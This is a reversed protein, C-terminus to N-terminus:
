LKAKLDNYSDVNKDNGLPKLTKILAKANEIRESPLPHSQLFALAAPAEGQSKFTEFMRVLGNPDYGRRNCMPLGHEDADREHDRSFKLLVGTSALQSALASIAGADKGLVLDQVAQLGMQSTLQQAVHRRTVHSIEHGLVCALEAEDHAAKMLGTYVYIDGGPIAFANITKDDKVVHFRLPVPSDTGRALRTGLDKIYSQVEASPHLTLEKELEPKMQRGLKIEDDAPLVADAALRAGGERVNACAAGLVAGGLVCLSLLLPRVGLLSRM